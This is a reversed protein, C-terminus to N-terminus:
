QQFYTIFIRILKNNLKKILFILKVHADNWYYHYHFETSIVPVITASLLHHHNDNRGYAPCIGNAIADVYTTADNATGDYTTTADHATRAHTIAHTTAYTTTSSTITPSCSCRAAEEKQLM